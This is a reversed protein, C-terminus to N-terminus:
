KTEEWYIETRSILQATRAREIYDPMRQDGAENWAPKPKTTRKLNGNIDREPVRNIPLRDSPQVSWGLTDMKWAFSTQLNGTGYRFELM